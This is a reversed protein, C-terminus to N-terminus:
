EDGGYLEHVKRKARCEAEFYYGSTLEYKLRIKETFEALKKALMHKEENDLNGNGYYQLTSRLDDCEVLLVNIDPKMM